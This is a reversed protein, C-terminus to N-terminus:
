AVVRFSSMTETLRSSQGRLSQAAAALQEVLASNQQTMGDIQSIANHVHEIDGSQSEGVQAIDTILASVRTVSELIDQM